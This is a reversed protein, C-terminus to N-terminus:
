QHPHWTTNWKKEFRHKNARFIEGHEGTAILNNFSAGGFHHVFTDEACLVRLGAARLRMSYDDDEFMGREFQEDLPGVREFTDRRIALCFMPAMPIDFSKGDHLRSQLSAFERLEGLTRYSTDIEAENGIRNTVACVSGVHPDDLHRALRALWDPPVITDNNLLVLLDGTAATLAQNNAPAFGRNETNLIVRVHPNKSALERLHAPTADTSANDVVILEYNGCQTTALLTHLCLKTFPLNNFTIVAVSCRKIRPNAPATVVPIPSDMVLKETAHALQAPRRSALTLNLEPPFPDVGHRQQDDAIPTVAATM